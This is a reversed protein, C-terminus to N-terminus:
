RLPESRLPNSLGVRAGSAGPFLAQAHLRRGRLLPDAPLALTLAPVGGGAYLLATPPLPSVRLWRPDRPDIPALPYEEYRGALLLLWPAGPPAGRLEYTLAAGLRPRPQARLAADFAEREFRFAHAGGSALQPGLAPDYSWSATPVGDRLVRAPAPRWGRLAIRDHGGDATAHRLQLDGAPDIGAAVVDLILEAVDRSGELAVARAGRELTADVRALVGPGDPHVALGYFPAEGDSLLELRGAPYRELRQADLFNCVAWAPAIGWAHAPRVGRVRWELV